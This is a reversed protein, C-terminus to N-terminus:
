AAGALAEVVEQNYAQRVTHIQEMNATKDPYVRADLIVSFHGRELDICIETGTYGLHTITHESFGMCGHYDNNPANTDWGLARSSQTANHVASFTAVTTKNVFVTSSDPPNLYWSALRAMDEVASYVGAHGSIGGNAYSNEDSVVGEVWEHRYTPDNWTPATAAADAPRFGTLGMGLPGFVHTRVYAEYACTFHLGDGMAGWRQQCEPLTDASRVYGLDLALKGLILHMTIMSLDSYVYVHNPPNELTQNLVSALVKDACTLVQPPHEESTAPCGFEPSWYGPVPDPPYGASHTLLEVVTISGKGQAAYGPGLLRPSAVPEELALEGRQYFQAAASTAGVVKSLSALDFRTSTTMPPNRGPTAPADRVGYTYNGFSGM